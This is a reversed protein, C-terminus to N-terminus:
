FNFFNHRTIASVYGHIRKRSMFIRESKKPEDNQRDLVGVNPLHVFLGFGGEPGDLFYIEGSVDSMPLCQLYTMGICQKMARNIMTM